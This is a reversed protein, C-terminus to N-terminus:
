TVLACIADKIHFKALRVCAFVDTIVRTGSLFRCFGTALASPVLSFIAIKPWLIGYKFENNQSKTFTANNTMKFNQFLRRIWLKSIKMKLCYENHCHMGGMVGGFLSLLCWLMPNSWRGLSAVVMKSMRDLHWEALGYSILSMILMTREAWLADLSHSHTIMNIAQM